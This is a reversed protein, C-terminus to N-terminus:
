ALMGRAWNRLTQGRTKDCRNRDRARAGSRQARLM